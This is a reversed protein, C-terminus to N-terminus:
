MIVDDHPFTPFCDKPPFPFIIYPDIISKGGAVAELQEEDLEVDDLEQKVPINIYINSSNTQDRVVLTKGETINLKAGTLKEIADVPNAILEQKFSADEWAKQIVTHFVEQEKTLEM